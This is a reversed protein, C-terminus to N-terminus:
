YSRRTRETRSCFQRSTAPYGGEMEICCAGFASYALTTSAIPQRAALIPTPLYIIFLNYCLVLKMVKIGELPKLQGAM